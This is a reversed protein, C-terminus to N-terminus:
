LTAMSHDTTGSRRPRSCLTSLGPHKAKRCQSSWPTPAMRRSRELLAKSRMTMLSCFPALTQTRSLVLRIAAKACPVSNTLYLSFRHESRVNKPLESSYHGRSISISHHVHTPGKGDQLQASYQHVATKHKYVTNPSSSRSPKPQRARCSVFSVPALSGLLSRLTRRQLLPAPKAPETEVAAAVNCPWESVPFQLHSSQSQV